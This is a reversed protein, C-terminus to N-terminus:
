APLDRECTTCVELKEHDQTPVFFVGCVARVARGGVTSETLNKRHTYHSVQGSVTLALERRQVLASLEGCRVTWAGPEGINTYIDRATDWDQEPPHVSCLVRLVLKRWLDYGRYKSQSPLIEILVEDVPTGDMISCVELEVTALRGQQPSPHAIDIVVTGGTAVQQLASLVQSQVHLEWELLLRAAMERKLLRRDEATPLWSAAQEGQHQRQVRQYFDDRDEHNGKALGAVVLWCVATDPDIWVGGRWQSVKIEYLPYATSARIPGVPNDQSPDEGFCEVAKAVIPHDLESLPHLDIERGAAAARRAEPSAWGAGLDENIVRLTPRARRSYM